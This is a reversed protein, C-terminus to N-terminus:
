SPWNDATQVWGDEKGRHFISIGDLPVRFSAAVLRRNMFPVTSQSLDSYRSSVVFWMDVFDESEYGSPVWANM